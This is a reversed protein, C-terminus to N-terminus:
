ETPIKDPAYITIRLSAGLKAIRSLTDASLDQHFDFPEYRTSYGIDFERRTCAQWELRAHEELSEIVSLFRAINADPEHYQEGTEFCGQWSNAEDPREWMDFFGHRDFVTQLAHPKSDADIKLDTNAYHTPEPEREQEKM